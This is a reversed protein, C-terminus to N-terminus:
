AVVWDVLDDVQVVPVPSSWLLPALSYGGTVIVPHITWGTSEGVVGLSDLSEDLHAQVWATRRLHKTAASRQGGKDQLLAEVEIQYERPTRASALDKCEIVLLRKTELVAALVDVDGLDDGGERIRAPGVKKLRRLVPLGAAELDDAVRDNFAEGDANVRASMFRQMEPSQADLRGEYILYYLFLIAKHLHRPGWVLDRGGEARPRALLPRRLYSLPRGYRWPWTDRAVFPAPPTLFGARPETTFAYLVSTVVPVPLGTRAAVGRRVDDEDFVACSLPQTEDWTMENLATVIELFAAHDVGFEALFADDLEPLGHGEEERFARAHSAEAEEYRGRAYRPYFQTRVAEWDARDAGIRGSALVALPVDVLGFHVLDSEAAYETLLKTAALLEDLVSRSFPRVGWSPRTAVYEAVFRGAIVVTESEALEEAFRERMPLVDGFCALRTPWALRQHAERHVAAEHHTVVGELLGDPSLSAVLREIRGFLYSVATKFVATRQALPVLGVGLSHVDRVHAGVDDLLESQAWGRVTRPKPLGEGLLPAPVRGRVVAAKRKPGLPAHTDLAAEIEVDTLGGGPRADRVARLLRRCLERESANNPVAWSESLGPGVAVEIRGATWHMVCRFAEDPDGAAQGAESWDGVPEYDITVTETPLADLLPSLVPELQWVWYEITNGVEVTVDTFPDPGTGFELGRVWVPRPGGEVVVEYRPPATGDLVARTGYSPLAPLQWLSVVESTEGPDPGVAVHPDWLRQAEERAETGFSPDLMVFSEPGVDDSHYFTGDKHRWYALEDFTTPAVVTVGRAAERERARAFARLLLPRDHEHELLSFTDLDSAELVVPEGSVPGDTAGLVWRHPRGVGQIVILFTIENLGSTMSFLTREVDHVHTMLADMWGDNEWPSGLRGPDGELPDTVLVAVLAKDTDVDFMLDSVCPLLRPPAPLWEPRLPQGENGLRRLARVTRRGVVGHYRWGLASLVGAEAAMELIWARAAVVVAGPAALVVRRRSRVLPRSRLPGGEGDFSSLPLEGLSVTFPDLLARFLGREQLLRDLDLMGFTVARRVAGFEDGSPVSAGTGEASEGRKRGARRCAADGVALLAALAGEIFPRDPHAALAGGPGFAAEILSELVYVSSEAAEPLVLHGRGDFAIEQVFPRTHTLGLFPVIRSFPPGGLLRRLAKPTVRKRGRARPKQSAAAHAVFELFLGDDANSPILQLGGVAAVLDLPDYPRLRRALDRPLDHAIPDASLLSSAM